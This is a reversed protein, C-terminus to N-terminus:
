GSRVRVALAIAVCITEGVRAVARWTTPPFFYSAGWAFRRAAVDLAQLSVLVITVVCMTSSYADSDWGDNGWQGIVYTTLAIALAVPLLQVLPNGTVRAILNRLGHPRPPGTDLNGRRRTRARDSVLLFSVLILCSATLTVSVPTTWGQPNDFDARIHVKPPILPAAM